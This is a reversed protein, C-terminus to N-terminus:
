DHLSVDRINVFFICSWTCNECFACAHGIIMFFFVYMHRTNLFDCEHKISMFFICSWYEYFLGICTWYEYFICTDEKNVFVQEEFLDEYLETEVSYCKEKM